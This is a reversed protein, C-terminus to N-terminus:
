SDLRILPLSLVFEPVVRFDFRYRVLIRPYSLSTFGQVGLLIYSSTHPFFLLVRSCSGVDVLPHYRTGGMRPASRVVSSMFTLFTM